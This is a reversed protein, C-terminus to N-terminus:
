FVGNNCITTSYRIWFCTVGVAPDKINSFVVETGWTYSKGIEIVPDNCDIGAQCSGFHITLLLFGNSWKSNRVCSANIQYQACENQSKAYQQSYFERISGETASVGDLNCFLLEMKLVDTYRSYRYASLGTLQGLASEIEKLKMALKVMPHNNVLIFIIIIKIRLTIGMWNANLLNDVLSKQKSARIM